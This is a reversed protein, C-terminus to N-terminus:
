EPQIGSARIVKGLRDFDLRVRTDLEKATAVWPEAGLTAFRERLDPAALSKNLVDALRQVIPQPLNAPGHLASWFILTADPFGAEAITPVDPFAASRSPSLMALPRISGSKLHQMMSPLTDIVMTISGSIADPYAVAVTKFPIHTMDVGASLGLIEGTLHGISGVGSSGYIVKGPNGKARAIVDKVTKMPQNAGVAMASTSLAVGGISTFATSPNFPLKKLMHPSIAHAGISSFLITYGDPVANAVFDSGIVGAAGARNEVAIAQGILESMKAALTRGLIDSVGGAGYPVVLRLPRTPYGGAAPQAFAPAAMTAALLFAVAEASRKHATM